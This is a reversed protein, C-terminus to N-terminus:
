SDTTSKIFPRGECVEKKSRRAGAKKPIISRFQLASPKEQITDM